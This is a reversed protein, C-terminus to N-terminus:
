YRSGRQDSGAQWSTLLNYAGALTNLEGRLTSWDAQAQTTLQNNSMYTDIPTARTLVPAVYDALPQRLDFQNRLQDTAVRFYGVAVLMNRESQPQNYANRDFAATLSSRFGDGAAAIRRILQNLESESLRLSRSSSMRPPTQQNWQWSLGYTSALVNLDTRVSTWENQVRLSLRNRTMFGDVIGAKQLINQVDAASAQHLTFRDRFQDLASSFAPEFTNIDNPPRTEDIHADILALNLSDRFRNSSQELRRLTRTVQRDAIRNPPLQVQASAGVAALLFLLFLLMRRKSNEM